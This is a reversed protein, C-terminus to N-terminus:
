GNWVETRGKKWYYPVNEVVFANALRPSELPLTRLFSVHCRTVRVPRPTWRERVGDIILVRRTDASYSFTHPMPGAFGRAEKWDAFPSNEPLPVDEEGTKIAICFDSGTSAVELEDGREIQRIDTTTYRYHTFLNGFFEMWRSNTESKLIYLGRMRRGAHNTYRVFIRYGILFFEKGFLKPFGKPRLGSTDVMAVAVFAWRDRYVDLSLCEPIMSALEEKEAAFTLVLSRRFFAEVAFPHNQTQDPRHALIRTKQLRALLLRGSTPM